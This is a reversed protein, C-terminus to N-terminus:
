CRRAVRGRSHSANGFLMNILQGAELGTTSVALGVRVEFLGQRLERVSQVEGVIDRLVADDGIASLPLEVSQEIALAEARANRSM